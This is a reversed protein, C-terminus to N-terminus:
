SIESKNGRPVSLNTTTDTYEVRGNLQTAWADCLARPTSSLHQSLRRDPYIEVTWEQEGVSLEVTVGVMSPITSSAPERPEYWRLVENLYMGLSVAQNVTLTAEAPTSMDPSSATEASARWDHITLTTHQRPSQATTGVVRKVFETLDIATPDPFAMALEHTDAMAHVRRHVTGPPDSQDALNLFALVTQLNNKVRHHLEQVLLKKQELAQSLLESTRITEHLAANKQRSYRRMLGYVLFTTLLVYVWGKVTQLRAVQEPSDAIWIVLADSALVWIFGFLFYITAVKLPGRDTMRRIM